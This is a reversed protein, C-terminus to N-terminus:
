KGLSLRIPWVGIRGGPKKPQKGLFERAQENRSMSANGLVSDEAFIISLVSTNRVFPVSELLKLSEIEGM